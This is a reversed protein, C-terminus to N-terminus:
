MKRVWQYKLIKFWNRFNVLNIIWSHLRIKWSMLIKNVQMSTLHWKSHHVLSHNKNSLDMLQWNDTRQTLHHLNKHYLRIRYSISSNSNNSIRIKSSQFQLRCIHHSYQIRPRINNDATTLIPCNITVKSIFPRFLHTLQILVMIIFLRELLCLGAEIKIWITMWWSMFYQLWWKICIKSEEVKILYRHYQRNLRHYLLTEIKFLNIWHDILTTILTETLHILPFNNQIKHRKIWRIKKIRHSKM